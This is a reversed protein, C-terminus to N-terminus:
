RHDTNWGPHRKLLKIWQRYFMELVRLYIEVKLVGVIVSWCGQRNLVMDKREKVTWGRSLSKQIGFNKEKTKDRSCNLKQQFVWTMIKTSSFTPLCKETMMESPPCKKAVARISLGEKKFSWKGAGEPCWDIRIQWTGRQVVKSTEIISKGVPRWM